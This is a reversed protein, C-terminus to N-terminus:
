RRAASELHRVITDLIPIVVE